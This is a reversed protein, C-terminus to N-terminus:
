GDREGMAARARRSPWFSFKRKIKPAPEPPPPSIITVVGLIGTSGASHDRTFSIYVMADEDPMKFDRSRTAYEIMANTLEKHTLAFKWEAM